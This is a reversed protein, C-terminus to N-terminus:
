EDEQDPKCFADNMYIISGQVAQVASRISEITLTERMAVLELILQLNMGTVVHCTPDHRVKACVYQNVSGYALDTLILKLPKSRQQDLWQDFCQKGDSEDVYFNIACMHDPDYLEFFRLAEIMGQALHGHACICIECM